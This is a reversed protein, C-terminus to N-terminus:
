KDEGSGLNYIICTALTPHASIMWIWSLSTEKAEELRKIPTRSTRGENGQLSPLKRMSKVHIQFKKYVFEFQLLWASYRKKGSAQEHISTFTHTVSFAPYPIRTHARLCWSQQVALGRNFDAM